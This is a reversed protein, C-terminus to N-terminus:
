QKLVSIKGNALQFRRDARAAISSDHTVMVLAKGEQTTTEILYDLAEASTQNDLNGTPEDAFVILPDNLLARALAVRQQEGGSLKSPRHHLREGLGVRRLIGEARHVVEGRTGRAILGPLVVNELATFEPLLHHFQYIFGIRRSRLHALARDSLASYDNEGLFVRGSTPRDLGGLIHLLTSKGSGSQGVISVFEGADVTFDVGSLVRLRRPGDIYEKSIKEGALVRGAKKQAPPNRKPDNKSPMPEFLKERPIPVIPKWTM